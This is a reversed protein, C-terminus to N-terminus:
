GSDEVAPALLPADPPTTVFHGRLLLCRPPGSYVRLCVGSLFSGPSDDFAMVTHKGHHLRTGSPKKHDKKEGSSDHSPYHCGRHGYPPSAPFLHKHEVHTM